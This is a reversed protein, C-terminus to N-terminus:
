VLQLAAKLCVDVQQRLTPSLTGITHVVLQRDLTFVNECQIYSPHLLGSQRGDPTVPEIFVHTFAGSRTSRSVAALIVDDIVANSRDTSIVVAPRIKSGTWGSYPLDVIAVDGRKM